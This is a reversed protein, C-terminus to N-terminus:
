RDVEGLFQDAPAHQVGLGAAGDLRESGPAAGERTAQRGPSAPGADGAGPRCRVPWGPSRRRLDALRAGAAPRAPRSRCGWRRRRWAVPVDRRGSCIMPRGRPCPGPLGAEAAARKGAGAAFFAAWESPQSSGPCCSGSAGRRRGGRRRSRARRVAVIAAAARLAALHAAVYRAGPRAEDARRGAWPPRIGHSHAGRACRPLTAPGATSVRGHEHGEKRRPARTLRPTGWAGGPGTRAAWPAPLHIAAAPEQKLAGGDRALVVGIRLCVVRIGADSAPATAAEWQRSVDALFGSGAASEETLLEDGRNGYYGVGSASVFVRPQGARRFSEAAAIALTRTGNVRSDRVERKFAETWRGAINKGALHVIGDCGAMEAPDLPQGPNWQVEGARPERRVLAVPEDGNQQLARSLAQGLFGSAGSILVRM